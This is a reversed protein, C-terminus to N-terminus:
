FKLMFLKVINRIVYFYVYTVGIGCMTGTILRRVNNSMVLEIYQVFWDAGMVLIFALILSWELHIGLIIMIIGLIEGILVGTCRACLPFQYGWLSFSRSEMQHCGLWHGLGMLKIWAKDRKNMVDEVQIWM